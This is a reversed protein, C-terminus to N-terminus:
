HVGGPAQLRRLEAVLRQEAHPGAVHDRIAFLHLMLDDSVILRGTNDILVAGDPLALMNVLLARLTSDPADRWSQAKGAGGGQGRPRKRKPPRMM